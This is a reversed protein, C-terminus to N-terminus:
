ALAAVLDRRDKRVALYNPGRFDEAEVSYGTFEVAAPYIKGVVFGSRMFLEYFDRLLFHTLTSVYGYEFQVADIRGNSLADAFGELVLHEAGEVDIKLLNVRDIGLDAMYADGTTVSSDVTMSPVRSHTARESGEGAVTFHLVTSLTSADPFHRVSVESVENLLGVDAVVVNPRGQVNEELRVRTTPVVEFAHIAAQRHLRSALETWEGINAGVDFITQLDFRSLTQLVRREGNSSVDYNYNEYADLYARAYSAVGSVVRSRRHQALYHHRREWNLLAVGLRRVM